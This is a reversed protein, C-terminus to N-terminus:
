KYLRENDQIDMWMAFLFFQVATLFLFGFGLVWFLLGNGFFVLALLGLLIELLGLYKVQSLTYKSANIIALGYFILAAPAAIGYIGRQVLLFIFVGGTIMPISFRGILQRSAPDWIKENNKKAKQKTLFYASIVSFFAVTLAIGVLSNKLTSTTLYNGRLSEENYDFAYNYDGLLKYSSKM